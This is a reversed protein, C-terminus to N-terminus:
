RRLPLIEYGVGDPGKAWYITGTDRHIEELVQGGNAKLKEIVGDPDDTNIAIHELGYDQVRSQWDAFTTLNITIGHLDLRYGDLGNQGMEAQVTAGLVETYFKVMKKPDPTKIHLHNVQYETM